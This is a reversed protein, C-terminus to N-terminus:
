FECPERLTLAMLNLTIRGRRILSPTPPHYNVLQILYIKEVVGPGEKFLRPSIKRLKMANDHLTSLAGATM